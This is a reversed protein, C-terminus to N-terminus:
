TIPPGVITFLPTGVANWGMAWGYWINGTVGPTHAYTGWYNGNFNGSLGDAVSPMPNPPVTQSTSFGIAATTPAIGGTISFNFIVGTSGQAATTPYTNWAAT